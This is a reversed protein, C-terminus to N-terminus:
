GKRGRRERLDDIRDILAVPDVPGGKALVSMPMAAMWLSFLSAEAQKLRKAVAETHEWVQKTTPATPTDFAGM